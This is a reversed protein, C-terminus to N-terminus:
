LGRVKVSVSHSRGTEYPFSAERPILVRFRYRVFGRTASFRYPLSWLGTERNARPTAFTSWKGRTYVQVYLLKGTDGTQRGKLRGHFRVEEGNVVTQRNVRFSTMARVGLEMEVSRSRLKATGPYRFRLTRSPGRLAKFRFAGTRSTQIVSVRRWDAGSLKLREWVEVDATALPNAGPTTLRGRLGITRGYRARPNMRLVTRTRWKGNSNRARIKKPAGVVMRTMVRLPLTRTAAAGNAQSDTSRENGARDTVRARLDYRGKPLQGDDLNAALGQSDVRTALVRWADEGERRVEIQGGAIGSTADSAIARVLTPDDDNQPTLRVTPADDDFRLTGVTVARERDTNGAEDELWLSLRWEGPKPVHLDNLAGINRQPVSGAACDRSDGSLNAAPCLMFRAAGIPSASQAPNRWTVSFSNRPRWQDGGELRADLPQGPPAIDILVDHRTETWNNGGDLAGVIVTNRGEQPFAAIPIALTQSIDGCPRAKAIDCNGIERRVEKGDVVVSVKRVGTSDTAGVGVTQDSNKWGPETVTGGTIAVSPPTPDNITVTVNKMALDGYLANRPCGAQAICVVHARVNSSDLWINIPQYTGWTSCSSSCWLWTGTDDLFGAYWGQGTNIRFDGWLRTIRTGPPATLTSNAGAWQPAREGGAALRTVIGEGPCLSYAAVHGSSVYQAWAGNGAVGNADFCAQVNYEGASAPPALALTLSLAATTLVLLRKM